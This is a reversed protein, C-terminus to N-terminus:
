WQAVDAVRRMRLWTRVGPLARVGGYLRAGIRDCGRARGRRGNGCGSTGRFKAGVAASCDAVPWRVALAVKGTRRMWAARTGSWKTARLAAGRVVSAAM